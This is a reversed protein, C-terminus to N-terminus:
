VPFSHTCPNSFYDAFNIGLLFDELSFGVAMSEVDCM